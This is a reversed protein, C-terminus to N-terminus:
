SKPVHRALVMYFQVRDVFVKLAFVESFEILTLVNMGRAEFQWFQDSGFGSISAICM